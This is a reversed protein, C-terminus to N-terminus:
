IVCDSSKSVRRICNRCAVMRRAVFREIWGGPRRQLVPPRLSESRRAPRQSGRRQRALRKALNLWWSRLGSAKSPIRTGLARRNRDWAYGASLADVPGTSRCAFSIVRPFQGDDTGM